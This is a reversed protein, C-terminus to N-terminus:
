NSKSWDIAAVLIDDTNIEVNCTNCHTILVSELLMFCNPCTARVQGSKVLKDLEKLEKKKVFVYIVSSDSCLM